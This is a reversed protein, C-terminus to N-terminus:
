KTFFDVHKPCMYQGDDPTKISYEFCSTNTMSNINGDALEM